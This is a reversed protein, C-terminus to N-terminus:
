NRLEAAVETLGENRLEESRSDTVGNSRLDM